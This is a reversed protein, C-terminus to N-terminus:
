GRDLGSTPRDHCAARQPAGCRARARDRGLKTPLHSGLWANNQWKKTEGRKGGNALPTGFKVVGLFM